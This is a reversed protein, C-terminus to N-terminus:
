HLPGRRGKDVREKDLGAAIDLADPNLEIVARLTPGRRDIEGIRGLYNKVLTVASSKGSEMRAQLQTITAEDLEFPKVKAAPGAATAPVKTAALASRPVVAASTLAALRLFTRRDM